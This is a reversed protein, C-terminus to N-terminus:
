NSLIVAHKNAKASVVKPTLLNHPKNEYKIEGTIQKLECYGKEAKKARNTEGM